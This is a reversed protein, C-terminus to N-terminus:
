LFHYHKEFLRGYADTHLLDGYFCAHKIYEIFSYAQPHEPVPVEFVANLSDYLPTAHSLTARENSCDSPPINNKRRKKNEINAQKTSTKKKRNKKM